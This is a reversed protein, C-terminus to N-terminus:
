AVSIGMNLAYKSIDLSTINANSLIASILEFEKQTIITRKPLGIACLSILFLRMLDNKYKAPINALYSKKQEIPANIMLSLIMNADEDLMQSGVFLMENGTCKSLAGVFYALTAQQQVTLDRFPDFMERLSLDFFDPERDVKM